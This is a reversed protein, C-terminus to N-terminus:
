VLANPKEPWGALGLSGFKFLCISIFCYIKKIRPEKGTVDTGVALSRLPLSGAEAQLFNVM